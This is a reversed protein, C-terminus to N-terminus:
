QVWPTDSGSGSAVRAVVSRTVTGIDNTSNGKAWTASLTYITSVAPSVIMTGAAAVMGIYQDISVSNAGTVNWSLTSTGDTNLNSSFQTIVAPTGVTPSVSNVTTTASAYVTGTYNTASITYVTPAAPSVLRNGTANVQGIGQDISVSNAGTVNWYLTSTGNSNLNSSFQIIAPQTSTSNVTTAVSQYVTGTYNTASITYVTPIAPSILRTGAASVQGIGQDISVSNAGSVNWSLTSTGDTNLNSSFQIIAPQMGVPPISVSNVTTTASRAVTGTFNTASITYVTSVAPSVAMTGAASVQGIGNDISVSNAGSVNWSLISTGGPNITSPSSTFTGIISPQGGVPSQVTICSPILILLSLLLLSLFGLKRM